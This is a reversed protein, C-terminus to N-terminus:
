STMDDIMKSILPVFLVELFIFFFRHDMTWNTPNPELSIFACTGYWVLSMAMFILGFKM